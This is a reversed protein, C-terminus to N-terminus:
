RARRSEIRILRNGEFTLISLKGNTPGYLWEEIIMEQRAHPGLTYGVLDRQMPPGCKREVEFTRDGTSVLQSGCRLTDAQSMPSAGMLGLLLLHFATRM